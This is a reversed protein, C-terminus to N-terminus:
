GWYSQGGGWYNGMWPTANVATLNPYIVPTTAPQKATAGKAAGSRIADLDNINDQKTALATNVDTTNAKANLLTNTEAKTYTDSKDAKTAEVSQARTKEANVANTVDTKLAYDALQGSVDIAAIADDVQKRTYTDSKDAKATLDNKTALVDTDASIQISNAVEGWKGVKVGTGAEVRFETGEVLKESTQNKTTSITVGKEIAADVEDKTYTESKLYVDSKNAKETILSTIGDLIPKLKKNEDIGELFNVIENFKNIITDVDEASDLLDWVVKFRAVLLSDGTITELNNIATTFKRDLADLEDNSVHKQVLYSQTTGGQYWYETITDGTKIGVTMGVVNLGDESLATHAAAVSSYPGYNAVINPAAFGQNLPKSINAM